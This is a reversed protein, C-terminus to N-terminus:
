NHRMEITILPPAVTACDILLASNFNGQSLPLLQTVCFLWCFCVMRFDFHLLLCEGNNNSNSNSHLSTIILEPQETIIIITIIATHSPVVGYVAQLM